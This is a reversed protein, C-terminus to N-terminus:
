QRRPAYKAALERPSLNADEDEGAAPDLGGSLDPTVEDAPAFKALTKAHTELAAEDDGQLLSALEAPLKHKAAVATRLITRELEAIKKDSDAQAAAIEEPTKADKFQAKLDRLQTRYNAAEGRVKSLETKVWDELGDEPNPTNAAPAAGEPPTTDAAPADGAAAGAQEPTTIETGTEDAPM